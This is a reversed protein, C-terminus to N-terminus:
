HSRDMCVRIWSYYQRWAWQEMLHGFLKSDSWCHLLHRV